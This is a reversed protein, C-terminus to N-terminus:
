EPGSRPTESRAPAKAPKESRNYHNMAASLGDTVTMKLAEVATTLFSDLEAEEEKSFTGLVFDHIRRDRQANSVGMRLRPFAQTQLAAIISELGKHGGSGGRTRLRIRGFPLDADDCVVIVEEPSLDYKEALTRACPGSLNMYTQPMFLFIEHGWAEVCGSTRAQSEKRTVRAGISAALRDVVMFGLNHRTRAYEEGPNGLGCIARIAVPNM